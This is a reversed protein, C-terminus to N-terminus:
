VNRGVLSRAEPFYGIGWMSLTFMNYNQNHLPIWINVVSRTESMNIQRYKIAGKGMFQEAPLKIITYGFLFVKEPKKINYLM